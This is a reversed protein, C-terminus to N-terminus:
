INKLFIKLKNNNIVIEEKKSMLCTLQDQMSVYDYFHEITDSQGGPKKWKKKWADISFRCM